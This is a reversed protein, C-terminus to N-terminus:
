WEAIHPDDKFMGVFGALPHSEGDVELPVIRAGSHIRAQLQKRLNALAEERTAGEASLSFPEAGRALYLNGKIPEILVPIEVAREGPIPM